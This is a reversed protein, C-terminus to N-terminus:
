GPPKIPRGVARRNIVSSILFYRIEDANRGFLFAFSRKPEASISRILDGARSAETTHVHAALTNASAGLDMQVIHALEQRDVRLFRPAISAIAALM